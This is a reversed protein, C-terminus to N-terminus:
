TEIGNCCWCLWSQVIVEIARYSSPSSVASTRSSGQNSLLQNATVYTWLVLILPQEGGGRESKVKRNGSKECHVLMCM